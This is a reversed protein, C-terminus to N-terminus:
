TMLEQFLNDWKKMIYNLEYLKSKSIANLSMQQRLYRDQIMLEIAKALKKVNGDEVLIGCDNNQIIERPGSECNFAVIPLGCSISEILVMPLGESRSSMVYFASKELELKVDKTLGALTVSNGLMLSDIQLQLETQLEGAGYIDLKWDLYNSSILSWANILLDYGKVSILNGISIVRKSSLNIQSQSNLLISSPNAIVLLKNPLSKWENYAGESLVVVVDFKSALMFHQWDRLKGYVKWLFNNKGQIQLFKSKFKKEFHCEYIKKCPIDIIGLFELEKGGMSICIDIEKQLIIKTLESEYEVLLRKTDYIKRLINLNFKENFNINLKIIEVNESLEFFPSEDDNMETTVIFIRYINSKALFNVKNTLVREMGGSNKLSPILYLLNIGVM